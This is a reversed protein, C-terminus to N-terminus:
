KVPFNIIQDPYVDGKGESAPEIMFKFQYSLGKTFTTKLGMVMIHFSGPKFEITSKAPITVSELKFMRKVGKDDPKYGHIEVRESIDDISKVDIIKIDKDTNNTVNLYAATNVSTAAPMRIWQDKFDIDYTVIEKDKMVSTKYEPVLNITKVQPIEESNDLDSSDSNIKNDKQDDPLKQVDSALNDLKNNQNIENTNDAFVNLSLLMMLIMSTIFRM